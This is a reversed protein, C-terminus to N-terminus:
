RDRTRTARLFQMRGVSPGSRRARSADPLPGTRWPCGAQHRVRTSSRWMMGVLRGRSGSRAKFGSKSILVIQPGGKAFRVKAQRMAPIKYTELDGLVDAGLRGSTWKCEGVITVVCRRLGVLDIEETQRTAPSARGASHNSPTTASRAAMTVPAEVPM